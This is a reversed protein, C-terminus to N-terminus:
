CVFLFVLVCLLLLFTVDEFVLVLGFWFGLVLPM